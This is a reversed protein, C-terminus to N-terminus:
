RRRLDIVEAGDPDEGPRRSVLPKRTRVRHVSCACALSHAHGLLSTRWPDGEDFVMAVLKTERELHALAEAQQDTM